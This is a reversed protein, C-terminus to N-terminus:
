GFKHIVGIAFSDSKASGVNSISRYGTFDYEGRIDWDQSLATQIGVGAQAGWVHKDQATFNTNVAGLRGYIMSSDNLKIGPILDAGYSATTRVNENSGSTYNNQILISGPTANLEAGMYFTSSLMDGFGLSMKPAVGRYSADSSTVNNLTISPGVYFSGAFASCSMTALTAAVALKKFM